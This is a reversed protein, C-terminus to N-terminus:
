ELEVGCPASGTYFCPLIIVDNHHLALHWSRADQICHYLCCVCRRRRRRQEQIIADLQLSGDTEETVQEWTAELGQEWAHGGEEEGMMAAAGAM